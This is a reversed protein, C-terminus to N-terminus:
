AEPVTVVIRTGPNAPQGAITGGLQEVMLRVLRMGFGERHERTEGRESAQGRGDDTVSLEFQGDPRKDFRVDIAGAEGEAFAYKFANTVLENVILGILVARESRIPEATAEVRVAVPRDGRLMGALREGLEALYSRMDIMSDHTDTRLFDHAGAIVFVRAVAADLSGRAAEDQQSRAQMQLLSAVTQLNNKIRHGMEKLLLDKAKEAAVARELAKRLMESVTAIGLCIVVFLAFPILHATLSQIDATGGVLLYLLLASVVTALFGSGRDFLVAPLFIAPTMVFFGYTGVRDELGARILFFVAVIALTTGYRVWISLGRRPLIQLLHDM